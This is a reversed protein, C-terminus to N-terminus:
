RYFDFWWKTAPPLDIPGGMGRPFGANPHPGMKPHAGTGSLTEARRRLYKMPSSTTAKIAPEELHDVLHLDPMNPPTACSSPMLRRAHPHKYIVSPASTILDSQEYEREIRTVSPVEFASPWPCGCRFGFGSPPRLNEM